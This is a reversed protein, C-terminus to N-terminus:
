EPELVLFYLRGTHQMYGAAIEAEKGHGWYLDVRGPGRIAGGTDQNLAFRSFATWERITGAADILPKRTEIMALAGSPFLRRDTAISRGATLPVNINGLPGTEEIKFFVYSPNHNFVEQIEEPHTELYSRIAQMSMKERPVKHTDILLKGISRYPHGNAGHYHVNITNGDDLSIKGSGQIHLFFLDVADDVYALPAVQGELAGQQDIQLRDYYPIVTDGTVRGVIRQDKFQSSFPELDITILDDPRAYVPYRYPPHRQRSGHLLPEYYGTYLVEGAHDRGVSAYVRFHRTIFASLEGTSPARRIFDQFYVLSRRLHAASFKDRGFTFMRDPAIRNLYVLSQAIAQDLDAYDLDDQFPPYDAPAIVKLPPGPEPAPLPPRERQCAGLILAWLVWSIILYCRAPATM